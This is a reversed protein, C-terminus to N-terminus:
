NKTISLNHLAASDQLFIGNKVVYVVGKEHSLYIM